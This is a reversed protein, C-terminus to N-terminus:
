IVLFTVVLGIFQAISFSFIIPGLPWVEKKKWRADFFLFPIYFLLAGFIIPFIGMSLNIHNLFGDAIMWFGVALVPLHLTFRELFLWLYTKPTQGPYQKKIRAAFTFDTLITIISFSAVSTILIANISMIALNFTM